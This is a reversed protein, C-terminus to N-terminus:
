SNSAISKSSPEQSTVPGGSSFFKALFVIVAKVSSEQACKDLLPSVVEMM